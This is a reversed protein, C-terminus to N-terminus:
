FEITIRTFFKNVVIHCLKKRTKRLPYSSALSIALALDQMMKELADEECIAGMKMTRVAMAQNRTTTPKPIPLWSTSFTFSPYPEM